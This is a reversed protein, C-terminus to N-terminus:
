APLKVGWKNELDNAMDELGLRKLTSKKPLGTERDIGRLDYYRDIGERLNERTLGVNKYSPDEFVCDFIWDDEKRQGQRAFICRETMWIRDLILDEDEDTDIHTGTVANYMRRRIDWSGIYDDTYMSIFPEQNACVCNSDVWAKYNHATYTMIPIYESMVRAANDIAGQDTGWRQLGFRKKLEMYEGSGQVVVRPDTIINSFAWTLDNDRGRAVCAGIWGIPGYFNAGYNYTSRSMGCNVAQMQYFLKAEPTGLYENLFHASGKSLVEALGERYSLKHILQRSFEKSGVPADIDMDEPTLYGYTFLPWIDLHMSWVSYGMKDMEKLRAFAARGYNENEVVMEEAEANCEVCMIHGTGEQTGDLFKISMGCAIPCMMCGCYGVKVNKGEQGETWLDNGVVSLPGFLSGRYAHSPEVETEKRTQLRQCEYSTELLAKPDYISVGGTGRVVIAKLKKSGMIAGMGGKGATNSDDSLIVSDYVMNEGAPGITVIRHNEDFRKWFVNQTEQTDMGWIDGADRIEVKDDEILLYVPKESIGRVVIGDWGAYKLEPGWMGGFMSKLYAPKPYQHPVISTVCTKQGGPHPTGMVPSTNFCLVNEADFPQTEPGTYEWVLRAGMGRGGLWKTYKSSDLHSIEKTTLDVFLIKGTWGYLQDAM